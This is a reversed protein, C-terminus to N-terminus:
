HNACPKVESILLADALHEVKEYVGRPDNRRGKLFEYPNKGAEV